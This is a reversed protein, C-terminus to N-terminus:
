FIMLELLNISNERMLSEVVVIIFTSSNQTEYAAEIKKESEVFTNFNM